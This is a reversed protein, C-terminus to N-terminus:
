PEWTITITRTPPYWGIELGLQEAIFRVPLFTRGGLIIPVVKSNAPDILISKGNVTATNKGITLVMTVGRAKVTVQRTKANWAISGGLEHVLARLPLLTRSELIVPAVDMTVSAGDVVMVTSDVTLDITRTVRPLPIPTLDVVWTFSDHNGAKDLTEVAITNLGRKLPISATFTGDMYPIVDIGDITLSRVGSVDDTITGEVNLTTGTVMSELSGVLTVVPAHTDLTISIHRSTTNGTGDVATVLVDNRGEFLSISRTFTGTGDSSTANRGDVFLTWRVGSTSDDEITFQLDFPSRNVTFAPNGSDPVGTGSAGSVGSWTAFDPFRIVPPLMDVAQNCPHATTTFSLEDGYAVADGEAKARFYYTTSKALGTVDTSFAGPATGTVVPATEFPYVGSVTGYQFSVRVSSVTGMNTLYGNLTVTNMCISDAARTAVMPPVHSTARLLTLLAWCTSRVETFEGFGGGLWHGDPWQNTVIVDAFDSYWDHGNFTEIGLETFGKTAAITAIFSPLRNASQQDLPNGRWGFSQYSDYGNTLDNWHLNMFTLADQVRQSALTLGTLSQAFLLHGTKYVNTWSGSQTYGAGGFDPGAVHDQIYENWLALRDLLGTPLVCGMSHVAYGLGMTAWGTASQDGSMTPSGKTYYWAGTNVGSPVQASGLWDVSMQAVQKYTFGNLAGGVVTATPAGSRAIGMLCPGTQYANNGGVNWYVWHNGADYSANSFLYNLGNQVNTHYLYTSDLPTKGLHEANHELVALAFGTDAAYGGPWSGGVSQQSVLYAVGDSIADNIETQTAGNAPAALSASCLVAILFAVIVKGFLRKVARGSIM